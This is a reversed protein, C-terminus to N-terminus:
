KKGLLARCILGIIRRASSAKPGAPLVQWDGGGLKICLASTDAGIASPTNAVIMDLNKSRLKKEANQRLKRDELAFGVLFQGSQKNRGAWRLIDVTPKLKLSLVAQEKKIKTRSFRAPKYDSVAAAMILCDCAAFEAQVAALMEDSSVIRRVRVGKPVALATPATILTVAHGARVAARALAYGMRGSSANSIFRVPDIYERTGGATILFRLSPATKKM